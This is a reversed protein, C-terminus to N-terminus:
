EAGARKRLEGILLIRFNSFMSASNVLREYAAGALYTPWWPRLYEPRGEILSLREVSFGTRGAVRRVDGQSNALYHTPFTDVAARGRWRNVWQHFRHPTLRSITPMYHWKNPTKFLFVGGPKLVRHVESFVRDPFELHELVNDAFALDFTGHAYPLQAVDGVRGEDLYPNATVRSDLDVGCVRRAHGRFNMQSVIGAGAGLDLADKDPGLHSLVVERFLADDWNREFGPYLAKDLRAEIGGRAM